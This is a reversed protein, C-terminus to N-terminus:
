GKDGSKNNTASANGDLYQYTKLQTQMILESGAEDRVIGMDGITVIRPLSALDSIFEAFQHFQGTVTISIPWIKYFDETSPDNPKFQQFKLGRALGVQSIDILMAPVEAKTPLQDLVIGFRDQIEVMQAEYASLNIVREKKLLFAEKLEEEQKELKAFAIQGPQVFYKYGGFLIIIGVLMIVAWRFWIPWTTFDGADIDQLESLDIM